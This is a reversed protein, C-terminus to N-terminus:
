KTRHRSRLEANERRLDVMESSLRDVTAVLQQIIAKMEHIRAEATSDPASTPSLVPGQAFSPSSHAVPRAPPPPVPKQPSTQESRLRSLNEVNRRFEEEVQVMDSDSTSVKSASPPQTAQVLM